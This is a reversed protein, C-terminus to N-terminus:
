KLVIKFINEYSCKSFVAPSPSLNRVSIAASNKPYESLRDLPNERLINQHPREPDDLQPVRKLPRQSSVIATTKDKEPPLTICM